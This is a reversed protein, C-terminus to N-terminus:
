QEVIERFRTYRRKVPAAWDPDPDFRRTRRKWRAGDRLDSELGATIRATFAAGIAATEPEVSADVPVGVADALAQM